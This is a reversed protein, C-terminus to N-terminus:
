DQRVLKTGESNLAYKGETGSRTVIASCLAKLRAEALKGEAITELQEQILAREFDNLEIM